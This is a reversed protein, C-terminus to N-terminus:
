ARDGHEWAGVVTHVLLKWYRENGGGAALAKLCGVLSGTGSTRCDVILGGYATTTMHDTIDDRVVSLNELTKANFLTTPPFRHPLSGGRTTWESGNLLAAEDDKCIRELNTKV